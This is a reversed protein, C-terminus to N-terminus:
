TGHESFYPALGQNVTGREPRKDTFIAREFQKDSIYGVTKM